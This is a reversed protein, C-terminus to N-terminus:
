NFILKTQCFCEPNSFWQLFLKFIENELSVKSQPPFSSTLREFRYFTSVKKSQRPLWAGGFKRADKNDGDELHRLCPFLLSTPITSRVGWKYLTDGLYSSLLMLSFYGRHVNSFTSNIAATCHMERHEIYKGILTRDRQTNTFTKASSYTM